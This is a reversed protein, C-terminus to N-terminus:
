EGQPSVVPGKIEISEDEKPEEIGPGRRDLQHDPQSDLLGETQRECAPNKNWKVQRDYALALGMPDLKVEADDSRNPVWFSGQGNVIDVLAAVRREGEQDIVEVPVDM